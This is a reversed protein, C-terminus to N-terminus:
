QLTLLLLNRCVEDQQLFHLEKKYCKFHMEVLYTFISSVLTQRFAYDWQYSDRRSNFETCIIFYSYSFWNPKKQSHQIPKKNQNTKQKNKILKVCELTVQPFPVVLFKLFNAQLNRHQPCIRSQHNIHSSGAWQLCHSRQAPPGPRVICPSQVWYCSEGKVRMEARAQTGSRMERLLLLSPVWM